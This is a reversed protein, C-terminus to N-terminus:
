TCPQLFCNSRVKLPCSNLMEVAVALAPGHMLAWLPGGVAAEADSRRSLLCAIRALSWVAARAVEIFRCQM